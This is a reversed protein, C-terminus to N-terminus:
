LDTKLTKWFTHNETKLNYFYSLLECYCGGKNIYLDTNFMPKFDAAAECAVMLSLDKLKVKEITSDKFPSQLFDAKLANLTKRKM